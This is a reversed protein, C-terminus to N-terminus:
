KNLLRWVNDETLTAKNVAVEVPSMVMIQDDVVIDDIAAKVFQYESFKSYGDIKGAITISDKIQSFIPSTFCAIFALLLTSKKM